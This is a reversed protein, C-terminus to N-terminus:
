TIGCPRWRITSGPSPSRRTIRKRERQKFRTRNARMSKAWDECDKRSIKRLDIEDIGPWTDRIAKLCGERYQKTRPKLDPNDKISEALGPKAVDLITTDSTHHIIGAFSCKHRSRKRSQTIGIKGSSSM